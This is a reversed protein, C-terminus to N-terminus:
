HKKKKADPQHQEVVEWESSGKKLEAAMEKKSFLPKKSHAYLHKLSWEDMYESGADPLNLPINEDLDWLGM